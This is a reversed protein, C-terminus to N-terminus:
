SRRADQGEAPDAGLAALDALDAMVGRLDPYLHRHQEYARAYRETLVPDPAFVRGGATGPEEAPEPRGLVARAYRAAGRLGADTESIRRVPTGLANALLACWVDSRSGGGCLPLEAGTGAGVVRDRLSRLVFAVGELIAVALQAKTTRGSVGVFVGRAWPDMHPAREGDLYPLALLGRPAAHVGHLTREFSAHSVGDLLHRRAWDAASGANLTPAVLLETGPDGTALRFAGALDPAARDVVAALWGSSGLYAYDADRRGGTIGLTTTLADGPAHLVPLGAPLGLEAAAEPTLPWDDPEDPAPLEPLLDGRVGAARLPEPWWRRDGAALLGTTSATTLDCGAHGTARWVLYSHAGLLLHRARDLAARDHDHVWRLKAAITSADQPNRTVREWTDGLAARLRDYEGTARHDSYLIAPRLPGDDDVLVVDQMQGTVVLATPRPAAPAVQRVARVLAAWWDAPDQEVWGPRPRRTPHDVLTRALTRGTDDIVAAKVAATGADVVVLEAM